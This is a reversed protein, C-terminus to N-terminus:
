GLSLDKSPLTLKAQSTTPAQSSVRSSVIDLLNKVEKSLEM